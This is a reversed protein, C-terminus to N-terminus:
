ADSSEGVRLMRVYVVSFILLLLLLGVSMAAGLGFNFNVFSNLYIHMALLDASAPATNGFLVYPVNFDNFTWLCLVLLLVLNVPRLLPLTISRFQRWRNAGDISAAEYLEGRVNQLGALLVLFAFPWHRWVSTMVMSWFATDGILWFPPSEVLHMGDVLLANVAGTQQQLMFKWAMIGVYVPLAYPILFLARFWGRARFEVNVLLAAALGLAWSLGVVLATFSVTVWLSNVLEEGITGNVDLGVRFNGFGVFPANLWNRLTFQNIEFFSMAVGVLMPGVHILLEFVLAPLVLLYPLKGVGLHGGKGRRVQGADSKRPSDSGEPSQQPAEESTPKM